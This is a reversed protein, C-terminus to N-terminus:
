SLTIRHLVYRLCTLPKGLELEKRAGDPVFGYNEYFRRARINKELVWVIIERYGARTLESVAFDMMQTGFGKGWFEKLLYIAVVDGADPKDEDGSKNFILRGIMDDGSMVCFFACGSPENIAKGISEARQELEASMNDLYIDPIIGTYADRWCAIHLTTYELAEEFLVKRILIGM